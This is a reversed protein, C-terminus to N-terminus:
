KKPDEKWRFSDSPALYEIKDLLYLLSLAPGFLPECNHGTRRSTAYLAAYPVVQQRRLQKMLRICLAMVTADPHEHKTPLIM